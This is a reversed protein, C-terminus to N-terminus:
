FENFFGVWDAMEGVVGGRGFSACTFIQTGLATSTSSAKSIQVGRDGAVM